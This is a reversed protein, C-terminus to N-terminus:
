LIGNKIYHELEMNLYRDLLSHAMRKIEHIKMERLENLSFGAVAEEDKSLLRSSIDLSCYDEKEEDYYNLKARIHEFNRIEFEFGGGTLVIVTIARSMRNSRVGIIL